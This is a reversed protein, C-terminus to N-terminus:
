NQQLIHGCVLANYLFVSSMFFITLNKNVLQNVLDTLTEQNKNPVKILFIIKKMQSQIKIKHVKSCKLYIKTM